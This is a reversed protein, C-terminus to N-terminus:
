DESDVVVPAGWGDSVNWVSAWADEGMALAWVVIGNGNSDIAVDVSMVIDAATTVLVATEWGVGAHYRCAWVEDSAQIWAAMANGADDSSIVSNRADTFQTDIIEPTLWGHGVVYRNALINYRSEDWQQWVVFANGSPEVAISPSSEAPWSINEIPVPIGWGADPEGRCVESSANIVCFVAICMLSITVKGKVAGVAFSLWSFHYIM